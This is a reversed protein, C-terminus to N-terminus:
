VTLTGMIEQKREEVWERKFPGWDTLRYYGDNHRRGDQIFSLEIGLGALSKIVDQITRRPWGTAEILRPVNPREMEEVLFALYLRRAFVPNLEM